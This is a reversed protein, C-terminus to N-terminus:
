WEARPTWVLWTSAHISVFVQLNTQITKTVSYSWSIFVDRIYTRVISFVPPFPWNCADHHVLSTNREAHEKSFTRRKVRLQLCKWWIYMIHLYVKCAAGLLWLYLLQMRSLSFCYCSVLKCLTTLREKIMRSWFQWALKRGLCILLIKNKCM